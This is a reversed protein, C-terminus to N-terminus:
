AHPIVGGFVLIRVPVSVKLALVQTRGANEIEEEAKRHCRQEADESEPSEECKQLM